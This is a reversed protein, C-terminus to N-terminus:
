NWKYFIHDDIEVTKEKSTVWEPYVYDAHYHTAGLTIDYFKINNDLLLAAIDYANNIATTDNKPWVDSKGDCYWSFHCRNKIPVTVSPDKWSPRRPGQYVVQCITNPFREDTVRNLTVLGVAVQGAFSQNRAEWYINQALCTLDSTPYYKDMAPVPQGCFTLSLVALVTSSKLLPYLFNQRM